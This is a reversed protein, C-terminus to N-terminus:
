KQKSKYIRKEPIVGRVGGEPKEMDGKYRPILHIHVHNVTQGAVENINIGINFGDPNYKKIIIQKVRNVAKWCNVQEEESLDFYNQCHRKPIILSHGENVPYKDYIAYVHSTEMIIERDPALNCFPCTSNRGENHKEMGNM